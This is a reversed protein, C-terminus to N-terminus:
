TKLRDPAVLRRYGVTDHGDCYGLYPANPGLAGERTARARAKAAADPYSVRRSDENGQLTADEPLLIWLEELERRIAFWERLLGQCTIAAVTGPNGEACDWPKKCFTFHATVSEEPPTRQCDTDSCDKRGDRCLNTDRFGQLSSSFSFLRTFIIASPRFQACDRCFSVRARAKFTGGNQVAPLGEKAHRAVVCM